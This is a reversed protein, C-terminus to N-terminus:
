LKAGGVRGASAGGCRIWTSPRAAPAPPPAAPVQANCWADPVACLLVAGYFFVGAHLQAAGCLEAMRTARQVYDAAAAKLAAKAAMDAERLM